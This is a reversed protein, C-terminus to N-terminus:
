EMTKIVEVAKELQNDYIYGNEDPETNLQVEVDPTLGTDNINTGKPTYYNATTLKVASGDDLYFTSQVVGKGYTQTGVLQAMDYDRVAGAFIESASATYENVLVVMPLELPSEGDSNYDKRNGNKDITYVMVGEPLIDNLIATVSTMLGGTNSRLDIILRTMGQSKLDELHTHFQEYSTETFDYIALYGIEEDVMQSAVMPYQISSPVVTLELYDAEGERILTLVVGEEGSSKIISVVDALEMEAAAMGDVMYLIDGVLIGAAEAPSDAYCRTVTLVGTNTDQSLVVGIGQYTGENAQIRQNTEDLTFYASYQDGLADIMGKYKGDELAKEDVEGLFYEDICAQIINEKDTNLNIMYLVVVVVVTFAIGLVFWVFGPLTRKRSLKKESLVDETQEMVVEQEEM